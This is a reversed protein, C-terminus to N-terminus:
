VYTMQIWRFGNVEGLDIGLVKIKDPDCEWLRTVEEQSQVINRVVSLFYDTGGVTSNIRSPLKNEDLRRYKVANLERVKFALLQLAFVDTRISGRLVYVRKSYDAPSFDKDRVDQFHHRMEQVTLKMTNRSYGRQKKRQDESYGGVDTALKTILHGPEKDSLWSIIDAQAPYPTNPFEPHALSQILERLNKDKWFIAIMDLESLCIHGDEMSSMPAIKRRNPSIRNLRVFNEISPINPDIRSLTDAPLRGKDMLARAKEALELSGRKYHMKMATMMEVATSRLFSTAPYAMMNRFKGPDDMVPLVDKVQNIYYKIDDSSKTNVPPTRNYICHLLALLFAVEPRKDSSEDALAAFTNHPGDDNEGNSVDEDSTRPCLRDLLKRDDDEFGNAIARQRIRKTQSALHVVDQLCKMIIPLLEELLRTGVAGASLHPNSKGTCTEYQLHSHGCESYSDSYSDPTGMGDDEGIEKKWARSMGYSKKKKNDNTGNPPDEEMTSKEKWPKWKYLKMTEPVPQKVVRTRTEFSFRERHRYNRGSAHPAPREDHKKDNYPKPPSPDKAPRQRQQKLDNYQQKLEELRDLIDQSGIVQEQPALSPTQELRVFVKLASEFLENRTNKRKVESCNLYEQVIRSADSAGLTKIIKLSSAPGLSTVNRNYDNASVVCFATLRDRSIGLYEMVRPIKYELFKGKFPRIITRVSQYAMYDSDPTVVIDDHECAAAIAVDAEFPYEEVTWGHRRM